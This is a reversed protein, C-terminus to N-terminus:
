LEIVKKEEMPAGILATITSTIQAVFSIDGTSYQGGAIRALKELFENTGEGIYIIDLKIGTTTVADFADQESSPEGDTILVAHPHGASHVVKIAKGLQTGGAPEPISGHTEYCDNSFCFTKAGPFNKVVERLKDIRRESDCEYDMSGSTDLLLVGNSYVMPKLRDKFSSGLTNKQRESRDQVQQNTKTLDTM